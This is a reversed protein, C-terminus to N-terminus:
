RNMSAVKLQIETVDMIDIVGDCNIDAVESLIDVDELVLFLQIDTADQVDIKGDGNADGLQIGDANYVDFSTKVTGTKTKFDFGNVDITLVVTAHDFPVVNSPNEQGDLVGDSTWNVPQWSGNCAFKVQYNDFAEVDTYTITWIGSGESTETMINTEDTLDWNAGNLWTGDGNGVATIYELEFDQLFDAQVAIEKSESNFYISVDCADSLTFTYNNEGVGWAEDWTGNTVKFGYSGAAVDAFTIAYDYEKEEFTVSTKTMENSSPDWEAGTLGADGAVTYKATPESPVTTPEPETTPPETPQEPPYSLKLLGAVVELSPVTGEAADAGYKTEYTTYVSYPTIGLQNCLDTCTNEKANASYDKIFNAVALSKDEHPGFYEGGIVGMSTIGAHPGYVSANDPDEWFAGYAVKQSDTPNEYMKGTVYVTDGYCPKGMTLDYTQITTSGSKACFIVGYDADDKMTLGMKSSALDYYYLGTTEDYTCKESKSAFSPSEFDDHNAIAWPHCFVSTTSLGAEIGWLEEPLRFYIRTDTPEDAAGASVVGVSVISMMLALALVLSLIKKRM